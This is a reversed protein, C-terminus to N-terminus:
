CADVAGFYARQTCNYTDSYDYSYGYTCIEAQGYIINHKTDFLMVCFSVCALGAKTVQRRTWVTM